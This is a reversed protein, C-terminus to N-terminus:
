KNPANYTSKLKKPADMWVLVCNRGLAGQIGYKQPLDYMNLQFDVKVIAGRSIFAIDETINVVGDQTKKWITPRM